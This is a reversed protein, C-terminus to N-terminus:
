RPGPRDVDGHALSGHPDPVVLPLEQPDIGRCVLDDGRDVADRLRQADANRDAAAEDPDGHGAADALDVRGRVGDDVDDRDAPASVDVEDPELVLEPGRAGIPVVDVSDIGAGSPATWRRTRVPPDM